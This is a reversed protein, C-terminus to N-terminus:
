LTPKKRQYLLPKIESFSAAARENYLKVDDNQKSTQFWRASVDNILYNEVSKTVQSIVTENFNPANEIKINSGDVIAVFDNLNAVLDYLSSNFLIDVFTSEDDTVAVSDFKNEEVNKATYGTIGKVGSIVASKTFPINFTM